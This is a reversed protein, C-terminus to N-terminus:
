EFRIGTLKRFFEPQARLEAFPQLEAESQQSAQSLSAESCGTMCGTMNCVFGVSLATLSKSQAGEM